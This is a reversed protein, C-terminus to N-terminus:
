TGSMHICGHIHVRMTHACRTCTGVQSGLYVVSAGDEASACRMCRLRPSLDGRNSLFVLIASIGLKRCFTQLIGPSYLPKLGQTCTRAVDPCMQAGQSDQSDQSAKTDKATKAPRPTRPQRPQGQSALGPKLWTESAWFTVPLDRNIGSGARFAMGCPIAQLTVRHGLGGREDRGLPDPRHPSSTM